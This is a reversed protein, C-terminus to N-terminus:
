KSNSYIKFGIYIAFFWGAGFIWLTCFTILFCVLAAVIHDGGALVGAVIYSWGPLFISLVLVLLGMMPALKISTMKEVFSGM